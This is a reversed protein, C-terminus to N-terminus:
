IYRKDQLNEPSLSRYEIMTDELLNHNLYSLEELILDSKEGIPLDKSM